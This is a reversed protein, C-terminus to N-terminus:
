GLKVYEASLYGYDGGCAALCWGDKILYITVATGKKLERVIPYTTGPGTRFNVEATTSTSILTLTNGVQPMGATGSSVVKVYAKFAYGTKGNYLIYYWEGTEGLIQMSTGAALTTIVGTGSTNPGTRMNVKATSQGSALTVGSGTGGGEPTVGPTVTGGIVPTTQPASASTQKVYKAFLWGITGNYQARYWGDKLEYLTVSKGASLKGIIKSATSASQRFNVTATTVGAGMPTEGVLEPTQPQTAGAPLAVTVTIYKSSVWGEQNSANTARYWGDKLEHLTLKAGKKLVAVKQYTTAPGVRMNVSGTTVGEGSPNVGVAGGGAGGGVGPNVTGAYVATGTAKVYDQHVYGVREGIIVRYWSGDKGLLVLATSKALKDLSQYSSDPGLRFNVGSASITGTYVTEGPSPMGPLAPSLTPTPSASLLPLLDQTPTQASLQVYDFSMYGYVGKYQGYYWVGTASFIPVLEGEPIIELIVGSMSPESRLNVGGNITVGYALPTPAFSGSPSPTPSGTPWWGGPPPTVGPSTGVGPIQVPMPEYRVYSGSIYGEMSSGDVRVRYWGDKLEYVTLATGRAVMGQSPFSTGAGTRLNVKGTTVGTGISPTQSVPTTPVPDAPLTVNISALSARPYYFALIDRYSQGSSARQQAGRQSLGVGHGWRVHYIYYSSGEPSYEGWYTRLNTNYFVGYTMLDNVNFTIAINERVTGGAIADVAMAVSTMNRQTGSLRPSGVEVGRIVAIGEPTVGLAATLKAVILDYMSQSLNGAANVPIRVSERLSYTNQMDPDDLGIAFGADTTNARTPWAYTPLNTEGGNSASYYACLIAGNVTLVENITSDVATIVNTYASNYGKYVQDSSTDGIHYEANPSAAVKVLVYSKAAIAQARLAELPFNDNMEYGVVGYLYYALPVENVIQIYGSSLLKAYMHGLYRRANFSLSGGSANVRARMIRISSGTYLEGLASHVATMTGNFNSRLTLTGGSFAAGNQEIFFEGSVSMAISTANNTSLKVRVTNYDTGAANARKVPTLCLLMAVALLVAWVRKM